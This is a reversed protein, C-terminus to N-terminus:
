RPPIALMASRPAFAIVVPTQPAAISFLTALFLASYGGALQNRNMEDPTNVTIVDGSHTRDTRLEFSLRGVISKDSAPVRCIEPIELTLLSNSSQASRVAETMARVSSIAALCHLSDFNGVSPWDKFTKPIKLMLEADPLAARVIASAVFTTLFCRTPDVWEEEAQRMLVLNGSVTAVVTDDPFRQHGPTKLRYVDDLAIPVIGDREPGIHSLLHEVKRQFIDTPVEVFSDYNAGIDESM